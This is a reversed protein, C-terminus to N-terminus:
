EALYLSSFARTQAVSEEQGPSVILNIAGLTTLARNPYCSLTAVDGGRQIFTECARITETTEGSRSVAVLLSRQKISDANLWVESAPFGYGEAHTLQRYLAATAMSLYYTSGCGTFVLSEYRNAQFFARLTDAQSRVIELTTRWSDPQSLIENLTHQESTM